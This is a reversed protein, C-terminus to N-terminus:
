GVVIIEFKNKQEISLNSLEKVKNGWAGEVNNSPLNANLINKM